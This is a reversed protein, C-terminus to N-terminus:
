KSKTTRRIRLNLPRFETLEDALESCCLLANGLRGLLPVGDEDVLDNSVAAFHARDLFFRAEHAADAAQRILTHVEELYELATARDATVDHSASPRPRPNGCGGGVADLAQAMRSPSRWWYSSRSGSM